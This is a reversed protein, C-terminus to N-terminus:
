ATREKIARVEALVTALTTGLTDVNAEIDLLRAEASMTAKTKPNTIPKAWVEAASVDDDEETIWDRFLRSYDCPGSVGPVRANATYQRAVVQARSWGTPLAISGDPTSGYDSLWLQRWGPACDSPDVHAPNAYWRATYILGRAHGQRVAQTTFERVHVQARNYDRQGDDVDEVDLCLADRPGLGGAKRVVDLLHDFDAAGNDLAEAYCYAVRALGLRGAWAWREAFRNDTFGTGETAKLVIRDHGARLYAALDVTPQHHSVDAFTRM